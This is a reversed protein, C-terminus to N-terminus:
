RVEKFFCDYKAQLELQKAVMNYLKVINGQTESYM